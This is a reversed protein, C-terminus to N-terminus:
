NFVPYYLRTIWKSTDSELLRNTVLSQFPIAPSLFKYDNVYNALETEGEKVTKMGGKVEGVLIYGLIMKKLKFDGEAPLENKTPIAVMAEYVGPAIEYINLMPYNSEEGGKKRIYEKVSNVLSYIDETTPYHNFPKKYSILSPDTVKQKVINMGYVNKPDSFYDHLKNVLGEVNSNIKKLQAFQSIRKFPNTSVKYDPTWLIQTSDTGYYIFQLKGKLSDAANFVTTEFGNLLLKDIRYTCGNYSYSKEGNKEGPWWSQWKEKNVIQRAAATEACKIKAEINSNQIRPLVLYVIILFLLVAFLFLFGWKKM